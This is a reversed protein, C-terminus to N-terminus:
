APSPPLTLILKNRRTNRIFRQWVCEGAVWAVLPASAFAMGSGNVLVGRPSSFLASSVPGDEFGAPGRMSLTGVFGGMITNVFGIPSMVRIRANTADAIWANGGADLSIQGIGASTLTFSGAFNGFQAARGLGDAFGINSNIGGAITSVFADALRVSRIVSTWRDAVLLADGAATLTVASPWNMQASSGQADFLGATGTGTVITSVTGSSIVIARIRSNGNDGVYLLGNPSFAVGSPGNNGFRANSGVGDSTGTGVQGALTRVSASTVNVMRVMRNGADGVFIIGNQKDIAMHQPLNLSAATGIGDVWAGVGSGVFSSVVGAQTIRRIRHNLPESVYLNGM